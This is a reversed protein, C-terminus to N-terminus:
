MHAFSPTPACVKPFFSTRPIRPWLSLVDVALDFVGTVLMLQAEVKAVRDDQPVTNCVKVARKALRDAVNNSIAKWRDLGNVASESVHAKVKYHVDVLSFDVQRLLGSYCKKKSFRAPMDLGSQRVVNLCDGYYSSPRTSCRVACLFGLYEAAQPSQPLSAPVAGMIAAMPAGHDDVEVAAFAARTCAKVLPRTCSGDYFDSGTRSGLAVGDLDMFDLEDDLARLSIGSAPRPLSDSPDRTLGQMFLATTARGPPAAVFKCVINYYPRRAAVAPPHACEYLRHQLTDPRSCFTCLDLTDYGAKAARDETWIAGVM